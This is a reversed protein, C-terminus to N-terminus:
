EKEGNFLKYVLKKIIRKMLNLEAIISDKDFLNYFDLKEQIRESRNTFYDIMFRLEYSTFNYNKLKIDRKLRKM